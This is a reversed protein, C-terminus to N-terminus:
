KRKKIYSIKGDIFDLYERIRSLIDLLKKM